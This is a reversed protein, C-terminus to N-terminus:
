SSLGYIVKSFPHFISLIGFYNSCNTDINHQYKKKSSVGEGEERKLAWRGPLTAASRVQPM